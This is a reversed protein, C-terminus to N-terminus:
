SKPRFSNVECSSRFDGLRRDANEMMMLDTTPVKRFGGGKGIAHRQRRDIRAANRVISFEPRKWHRVRPFFFVLAPLWSSPPTSLVQLQGATRIDFPSAVDVHGNRVIITREPDLFFVASSERRHTLANGAVPMSPIAEAYDQKKLNFVPDRQRPHKRPRSSRAGDFSGRFHDYNTTSTAITATDSGDDDFEVFPTLTDQV